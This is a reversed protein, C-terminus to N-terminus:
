KGGPTWYFIAEPNLVEVRLVCGGSKLDHLMEMVDGSPTRKIEELQKIRLDKNHIDAKMKRVFEQLDSVTQDYYAVVSKHHQHSKWLSFGLISSAIAAPALFLLSDM